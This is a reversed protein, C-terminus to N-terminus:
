PTTGSAQGGLPHMGEIADMDDCFVENRAKLHRRVRRSLVFLSVALAAAFLAFLLFAPTVWAWKQQQSDNMQDYSAVWPIWGLLASLCLDLFFAGWESANPMPDTM